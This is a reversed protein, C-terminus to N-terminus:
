VRLVEHHCIVICNQYNGEATGFGAPVNDREKFVHQPSSIYGALPHKGDCFVIVVELALAGNVLLSALQNCRQLVFERLM